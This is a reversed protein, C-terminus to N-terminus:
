ASVRLRPRKAVTRVTGSHPIPLDDLSTSLGEAVLANLFSSPSVGVVHSLRLLLSLRIDERKRFWSATGQTMGCATYLDGTSMTAPM